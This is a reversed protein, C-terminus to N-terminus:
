WYFIFYLITLLTNLLIINSSNIECEKINHKKDCIYGIAIFRLTYIQTSKCKMM